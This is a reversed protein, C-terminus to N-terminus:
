AVRRGNAAKLQENETELEAIRQQLKRNEIRLAELGPLTARQRQNDRQEQPRAWRCNAPGYNGEKDPWRDISHKLSPRPGMDSVFNRFGDPTGQWREDVTVPGPILRGGYYPYASNRPNTCRDIIGSWLGYLPESHLGHTTLQARAKEVTVCGCSKSVGRRLSVARVRKETGCACRCLVMSPGTSREAYPSDELAALRGFVEGARIYMATKPMSNLERRLCGCSKSHGNRLAIGIVEGETGCDCHCRIRIDAGSAPSYELTVWRGFRTGAEVPIARTM